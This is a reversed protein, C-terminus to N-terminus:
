ASLAAPPEQDLAAPRGEGRVLRLQPQRSGGPDDPPPAPAPAPGSRMLWLLLKLGVIAVVIEGGMLLFLPM